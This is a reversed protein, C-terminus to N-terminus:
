FYHVPKPKHIIIQEIIIKKDLGTKNSFIFLARRGSSEEISEVTSIKLIEYLGKKRIEMVFFGTFYKVNYIFPEQGSKFILCEFSM